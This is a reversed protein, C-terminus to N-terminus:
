YKNIIWGINIESILITLDKTSEGISNKAKIKVNFLGFESPKGSIYYTYNNKILQLGSPLVGIISYITDDIEPTIIYNIDSYQECVIQGSSTIIPNLGVNITLTKSDSGTKGSINIDINYTGGSIFTGSIINDNLTIGSINTINYVIDEGTANITYTFPKDLKNNVILNTNTIKVRDSVNLILKKSDNGYNNSVNFDITYIGSESCLGSLTNNKLLLTGNYNDPKNYNIKLQLTGNSSIPYSFWDNTFVNLSYENNIITPPIGTKSIVIEGDILSRIIDDSGNSYSNNVFSTSGSLISIDIQDILDVNVEGYKKLPMEEIYNINSNKKLEFLLEESIETAIIINNFTYIINGGNNSIVNKVESNYNLINESMELLSLIEDINTM